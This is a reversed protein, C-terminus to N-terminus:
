RGPRTSRTRKPRAWRPVPPTTPAPPPLQRMAMPDDVILRDARHGRFAASMGHSIAGMLDDSIRPTVDGVQDIERDGDRRPYGAHSLQDALYRFHEAVWDARSGTSRMAQSRDSIVVAVGHGRREAYVRTARVMEMREVTARDFGYYACVARMSQGRLARTAEPRERPRGSVRVTIRGRSVFERTMQPTAVRITGGNLEVTITQGPMADAECAGFIASASEGEWRRAACGHEDVTLQDGVRVGHNECWRLDRDGWARFALLRVLPDSAIGGRQQTAPHFIKWGNADTDLNLVHQPGCIGTMEAHVKEDLVRLDMRNWLECRVLIDTDDQSLMRGDAGTDGYWSGSREAEAIAAREAADNGTPDLLSRPPAHERLAKDIALWGQDFSWPAVRNNLERETIELTARLGGRQAVMVFSRKHEDRFKEAYDFAFVTRAGPDDYLESRRPSTEAQTIVPILRPADDAAQMAQYDQMVRMAELHTLPTCTHM